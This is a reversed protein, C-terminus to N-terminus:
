VDFESCRLESTVTYNSTDEKTLNGTATRISAVFIRILQNTEDLLAEGKEADKSLPVRLILRIARRTERLEKLCLKIKHIFDRQSEASEAEGHNFLPSTGARMLQDAIHRGSMSRDIKEAFRVVEAAFDLLRDELDFRREM